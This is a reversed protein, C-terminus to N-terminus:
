WLHAAEGGPFPWRWIRCLGRFSGAPGSFRVGGRTRGRNRKTPACCAAGWTRVIVAGQRGGETKPLPRDKSRRKQPKRKQKQLARRGLRAAEGPLRSGQTRGRNRKTPACRAAGWTRVIRAGERGGRFRLQWGFVFCLFDGRAVIGERLCGPPAWWARLRV